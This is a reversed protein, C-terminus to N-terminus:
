VVSEHKSTKKSNQNVNEAFYNNKEKVDNLIVKLWVNYVDQVKKIKFNRM